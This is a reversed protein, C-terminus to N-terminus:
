AMRMKVGYGKLKYAGLMLAGGVQLASPRAGGSGQGMGGLYTGVTGKFGESDRGFGTRLHFQMEAMAQLYVLIFNIPVLRAQLRVSTAANNVTDYCQEADV